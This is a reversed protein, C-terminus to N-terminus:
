LRITLLKGKNTKFCITIRGMFTIGGILDFGGMKGDRLNLDAVM